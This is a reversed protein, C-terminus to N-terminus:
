QEGEGPEGALQRCERGEVPPLVARAVVQLDAQEFPGEFAAHGDEADAAALLEDVDEEAAREVGVEGAEVGLRGRDARDERLLADADLGARAQRLEEGALGVPDVGEVILADGGEALAEDDGRAILVVDDLRDLVRAVPKEEGDLPM